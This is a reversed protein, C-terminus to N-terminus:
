QFVYWDSQILDIHLIKTKNEDFALMLCNTRSSISWRPSGYRTIWCLSQLGGLVLYRRLNHTRVRADLHLHRIRYDTFRDLVHHADHYIDADFVIEFIFVALLRCSKEERCWIAIRRLLRHQNCQTAFLAPWCDLSHWMLWTHRHDLMGYAIVHLRLVDQISSIIIAPGARPRHVGFILSCLSNM